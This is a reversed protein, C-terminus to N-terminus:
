QVVRGNIIEWSQYSDNVLFDEDEEAHEECLPHNGCFQTHRIYEADKDCDGYANGMCKLM